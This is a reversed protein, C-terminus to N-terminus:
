TLVNWKVLCSRNQLARSHSEAPKTLVLNAVRRVMDAFLALRIWFANRLIRVTAVPIAGMGKGCITETGDREQVVLCGVKIQSLLSLIIHRSTRVLPEWGVLISYTCVRNLASTVCSAM